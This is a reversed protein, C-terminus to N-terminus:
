FAGLEIARVVEAAETFSPDIELAKKFHKKAEEPKKLELWLRGTNYHIQPQGPHIKIAKEYSSLARKFDGKKRYLVGLSNYVNITDPRIQLIDNLIEEADEVKEKSLYIDAAKQLFREAENPRDLKEYARGMAEYAKAFLRDLRTAKQFAEIAEGYKEQATKIYGINYYIEASEGEQVLKELVGLAKEYNNGAIMDLAKDLTVQEEQFLPKANASLMERLKNRVSDILLPKVFLGSVGEQGAALVKVKTFAAHTLFIPLDGFRDDSRMIKLLALGSMEPMEYEAIICSYRKVNMLRWADNGSEVLQIQRYGLSSVIDSLEQLSASNDDVLLIAEETM